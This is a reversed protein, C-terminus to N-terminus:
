RKLITKFAEPLFNAIDGAIMSLESKKKKALDGALGHVFVGAAASRLLPISNEPHGSPAAQGVLAAILGTLVDGSGGTAARGMAPPCM